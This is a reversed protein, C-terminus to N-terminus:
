QGLHGQSGPYAGAPLQCGAQVLVPDVIGAPGVALSPIDAAAATVIAAGHGVVVGEAVAVQEAVASDRVAAGVEPFVAQADWGGEGFGWTLCGWGLQAFPRHACQPVSPVGSSAGPVGWLLLHLQIHSGM